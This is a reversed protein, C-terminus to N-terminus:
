GIKVQKEKHHSQSPLTLTFTTGKGLSSKASISGNHLDVINKAIALGLGYGSIHQKTRAADARYFREFIHPLEAAKIGEGRDTIRIIAKNQEKSSSLSIETKEPSYKIANDLIIVVAEVLSAEDGLATLGPTPENKILIHKKEALGNARNVASDLVSELNVKTRPLDNNELQALRLLGESLTTLKALEELNSQLKEKAEKLGLKPNMLAVEIESQMAAIPTRLEHSADATFRSQAEHAEQIPQLTKRALYYSLFGAGVLIVTNTLVLRALVRDKAEEFRRDQEQLLRDRDFSGGVMINLGSSAISGPGRFGRDFEDTSLKYVTISFFISIVMIIALYLGALKTYAKQFM